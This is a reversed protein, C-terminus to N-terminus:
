PLFRFPRWFGTSKRDIRKYNVLTLAISALCYAYFILYTVPILPGRTYGDSRNIDFLLRNFPNSLVIVAYFAGPIIGVAMIRKVQPSETYIVSVTYLFYAMGMLPTLVFYVMTVIWTLWIPVVRYQQIMITSLINTFIASFTVTLCWQFIRNEFYSSPKREPCIGRYDRDHGFFHSGGSYEM